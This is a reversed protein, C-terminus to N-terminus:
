RGALTALDDFTAVIVPVQRATLQDTNLQRRCTATRVGGSDAASSACGSPQGIRSFILGTRNRAPIRSSGLTLPGLKTAVPERSGWTSVDSHPTEVSQTDAIARAALVKRTFGSPYHGNDTFFQESGTKTAILGSPAETRRAGRSPACPQAPTRRIRRGGHTQGPCRPLLKRPGSLFSHVRTGARRSRCGRYGPSAAPDRHPRARGTHHHEVSLLRARHRPQTCALGGGV